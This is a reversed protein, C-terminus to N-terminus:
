DRSATASVDGNFTIGFGASTSDATTDLGVGKLEMPTAGARFVTINDSYTACEEVARSLTGKGGFTNFSVTRDRVQVPTNIPGQGATAIILISDDQPTSPAVLGGDLTNVIVGPLYNYAPM